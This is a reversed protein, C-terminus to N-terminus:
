SREKARGRGERKRTEKTVQRRLQKTVQLPTRREKSSSKRPTQSRGAVAPLFRLYIKSSLTEIHSSFYKSFPNGAVADWTSKCFENTTQNQITLFVHFFFLSSVFLWALFALPILLINLIFPAGASSGVDAAVIGGQVMLLISQIWLLTVFTFFLAYNRRGVCTGIWPCHHDFREICMNCEYCHSTRPPRYIYCTQCFKVKLSHTKITMSYINQKDRISNDRYRM